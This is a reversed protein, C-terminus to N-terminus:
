SGTGNSAFQLSETVVQFLLLIDTEIENEINCDGNRKGKDGNSM